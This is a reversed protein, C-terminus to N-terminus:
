VNVGTNNDDPNNAPTGAPPVQGEPPMGDAPNPPTGAPEGPQKVPEPKQDTIVAVPRTAKAAPQKNAKAQAALNAAETAANQKALEAEIKKELAEVTANAAPQKDFLAAYRQRASLLAVDAGPAGDQKKTLLAEAPKAPKWGAKDKGMNAWQTPTFERSTDVGGVKKVATIPQEKDSMNIVSFPQPYFYPVFKIMAANCSVKTM